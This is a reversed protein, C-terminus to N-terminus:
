QRFIRKIESWSSENVAVTSLDLIWLNFPISSGTAKTYILTDGLPSVDCTYEHDADDTLEIRISGDLSVMILDRNGSKSMGGFIVHKSDPTWIALGGLEFTSISGGGLPEIALSDEQTFFALWQADPSVVGGQGERIFRTSGNSLDLAWIEHPDGWVTYIVESDDPTLCFGCDDWIALVPWVIPDGGMIDHVVFEYVCPGVDCRMRHYLVFNGNHSWIPLFAGYVDSLLTDCQQGDSSIKWVQVNTDSYDPTPRNCVFETGDPSWSPNFADALLLEDARGNTIMLPLVALSIIMTRITEISMAIEEM